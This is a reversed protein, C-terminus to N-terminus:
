DDHTSEKQLKEFYFEVPGRTFAIKGYRLLAKVTSNRELNQIMLDMRERFQDLTMDSKYYNCSRCAPMKNSLVDLHSKDGKDGRRLPIVHDEQMTKLTLHCGCYACHGGTKALVLERETM